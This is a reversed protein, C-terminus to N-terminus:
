PALDMPPIINKRIQRAKMVNEIVIEAKKTSHFNLRTSQSTQARTPINNSTATSNKRSNLITINASGLNSPFNQNGLSKNGFGSFATQNFLQRLSERKAGDGVEVM